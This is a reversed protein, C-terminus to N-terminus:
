RPWTELTRATESSVINLPVAYAYPQADDQYLSNMLEVTKKITGELGDELYAQEFDTAIAIEASEFGAQFQDTLQNINNIIEDFRADDTNFQLLDYLAKLFGDIGSDEYACHLIMSTERMVHQRYKEQQEDTLNEEFEDFIEFDDFKSSFDFFKDDDNKFKESYKQNKM